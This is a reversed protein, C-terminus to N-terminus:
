PLSHITNYQSRPSFIGKKWPCLMLTLVTLIPLFLALSGFLVALTGRLAFVWWNLALSPTLRHTPNQTHTSTGDSNPLDKTKYNHFGLRNLKMLFGGRDQM